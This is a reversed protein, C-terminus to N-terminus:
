RTLVTENVSVYQAIGIYRWRNFYANPTGSPCDLGSGTGNCTAYVGLLTGVYSGTQGSLEEGSGPGLLLGTTANSSAPKASFTYQNPTNMGIQLRIPKGAWDFPIASTNTQKSANFYFLPQSDVLIIGLRINAHQTLFATM